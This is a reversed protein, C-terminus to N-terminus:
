ETMTFMDIDLVSLPNFTHPFNDLLINLAQCSAVMTKDMRWLYNDSQYGEQISVLFPRKPKTKPKFRRERAFEKCKRLAECILDAADGTHKFVFCPKSDQVAYCFRKISRMRGNIIIYGTPVRQEIKKELLYIDGDTIIVHSGCPHPLGASYLGSKEDLVPQRKPAIRQGDADQTPQWQAVKIKIRNRILRETDDAHEPVTSSFPTSREPEAMLEYFEKYYSTRGAVLLIDVDGAEAAWEAVCDEKMYWTASTRFVAGAQSCATATARMLRKTNARVVGQYHKLPPSIGHSKNDPDFMEKVQMAKYENPLRLNWDEVDTASSLDFVLDPTRLRLAAFVEDFDFDQKRLAAKPIFCYRVVPKGTGMMQYYGVRLRYDAKKTDDHDDAGDGDDGGGDGGGDGGLRHLASPSAFVDGAL